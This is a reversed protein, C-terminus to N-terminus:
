VIFKGFNVWFWSTDIDLHMCLVMASLAMRIACGGWHVWVGPRRHTALQLAVFSEQFHSMCTYALSWSALSKDFWVRNLSGFFELSFALIVHSTEVQSRESAFRSYRTPYWDKSPPPQGWQKFAVWALNLPTKGFFFRLGLDLALGQRGLLQYSGSKRHRDGFRSVIAGTLDQM